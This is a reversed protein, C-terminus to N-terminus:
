QWVALIVGTAAFAVLQHAMSIFYVVRSRGEFLVTVLATTVVFGLWTVGGIMLGEVITDAARWDAILGMVYSLLFASVATLGYTRIATAKSQMADHLRQFTDKGITKEVEATWRKAFLLPSYWLAGIIMNAVTAAIVAFWNIDVEPM